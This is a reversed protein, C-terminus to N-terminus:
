HLSLALSGLHLPESDGKVILDPNVRSDIIQIKNEDHFINVYHYLLNLIATSFGFVLVCFITKKKVFLIATAEM